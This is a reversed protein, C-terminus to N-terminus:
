HVEISDFSLLVQEGEVFGVQDTVVLGANAKGTSSASTGGRHQVERRQASLEDGGRHGAGLQIHEDFADLGATQM